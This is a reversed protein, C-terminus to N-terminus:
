KRRKILNCIPIGALDGVHRVKEIIFVIAIWVYSLPIDRTHGGHSLTLRIKNILQTSQIM